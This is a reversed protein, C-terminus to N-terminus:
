FLDVNTENFKGAFNVATNIMNSLLYSINCGLFILLINM